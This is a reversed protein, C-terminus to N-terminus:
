ILLLDQGLWVSDALASGPAADRKRWIEELVPMIMARHGSLPHLLAPSALLGRLFPRDTYRAVSGLFYLPTVLAPLLDMPIGGRLLEMAMIYPPSIAELAEFGRTALHLYMFATHAFMLTVLRCPDTTDAAIGFRRRVADSPEWGMQSLGDQLEKVISRSSSESKADGPTGQESARIRSAHLAAIRGIQVMVWNQCGMIAELRTESHPAIAPIHYPLLLPETGATISAVIDLWIVTGGLFRFSAAEGIVAPDCDSLPLNEWLLSSTREDMGFSQLREEYAGVLMSIATRLHVQWLNGRSTYLKLCDKAFTWVTQLGQVM